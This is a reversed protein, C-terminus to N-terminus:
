PMYQSISENPTVEGEASKKVVRKSHQVRHKQM